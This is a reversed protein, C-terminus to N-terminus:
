ESISLIIISERIIEAPFFIVKNEQELSLFEMKNGHKFMDVMEAYQGRSIEREAGDFKGLPSIVTVQAKM